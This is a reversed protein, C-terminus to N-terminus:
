RGLKPDKGVVLVFSSVLPGALTPAVGLCGNDNPPGGETLPDLDLAIAVLGNEDFLVSPFSGGGDLPNPESGLDIEGGEDFPKPAGLPPGVDPNPLVPFDLKPGGENLESSETGADDFSCLLLERLGSNDAAEPDEGLEMRFGGTEVDEEDLTERSRGLFEDAGCSSM